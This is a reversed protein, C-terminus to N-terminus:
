CPASPPRPWQTASAPVRRRCCRRSGDPRRSPLFTLSCEGYLCGRGFRMTNDFHDPPDLRGPEDSPQSADDAIDPRGLLECLVGEDSRQLLPGGRAHRLPGAGPQHPGRLVARDVQDPAALREVALMFLESAVDLPGLLVKIRAVRDVLLDTVVEEAEHEGGAM